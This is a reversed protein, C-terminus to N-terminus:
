DNNLTTTTMIQADKLTVLLRKGNRRPVELNQGPSHMWVKFFYQIQGFHV